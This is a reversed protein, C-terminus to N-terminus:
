LKPFNPLVPSGAKVRAIVDDLILTYEEALIGVNVIGVHPIKFINAL